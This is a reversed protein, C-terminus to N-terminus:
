FFIEKIEYPLYSSKISDKFAFKGEELKGSIGYRYNSVKYTSDLDISLNNNLEAKLYKINKAIEYKKM